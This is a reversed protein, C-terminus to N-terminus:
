RPFVFIYLFIIGILFKNKLQKRIVFYSDLEMFFVLLLTKDERTPKFNISICSNHNQANFSKVLKNVGIINNKLPTILIKLLLFVM